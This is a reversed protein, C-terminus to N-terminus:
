GFQQKFRVSDFKRLVLVLSSLIPYRSQLLILCVGALSLSRVIANDLTAPTLSSIPPTLTPLRCSVPLRVRGTGARGAKVGTISPWSCGRQRHRRRPISLHLPCIYKTAQIYKSRRAVVYSEIEHGNKMLVAKYMTEIICLALVAFNGQAQLEPSYTSSSRVHM